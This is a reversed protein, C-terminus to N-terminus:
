KTRNCGAADRYKKEADETAGTQLRVQKQRERLDRYEGWKCIDYNLVDGTRPSVLYTGWPSTAKTNPFDCSAAFAYYDAEFAKDNKDLKEVSCYPSASPFKQHRLVISVLLKAEDVIITSSQAQGLRVSAVLFLIILASQALTGMQLAARGRSQQSCAIDYVISWRRTVQSM